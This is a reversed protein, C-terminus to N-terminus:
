QIFDINIYLRDDNFERYLIIRNDSICRDLKYQKNPKLFYNSSIYHVGKKEKLKIQFFINGDIDKVNFIMVNTKKFKTTNPIIDYTSFNGNYEIEEFKSLYIFSLNSLFLLNNKFGLIFKEIIDKHLLEKAIELTIDIHILKSYSELRMLINQLENMNEVLSLLLNKVQSNIEVDFAEFLSDIYSDHKNIKNM